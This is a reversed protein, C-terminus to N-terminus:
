GRVKTSEGRNYEHCTHKHCYDRAIRAVHRLYDQADTFGKLDYCPRVSLYAQVISSVTSIKALAKAIRAVLDESCVHGVCEFTRLAEQRVWPDIDDLFRAFLKILASAVNKTKCRDLNEVSRQLLHCVKIRDRLPLYVSLSAISTLIAYFADDQLSELCTADLLVVVLDSLVDLQKGECKAITNEVFKWIKILTEIVEENNKYDVAIMVSLLQVLRNWNRASPREQLDSFAKPLDELKRKLRDTPYKIKTALAYLVPAHYADQDVICDLLKIRANDTLLEFLSTIVNDLMIAEVSDRRKVFVASTKILEKVYSACLESTGLKGIFYWVDASLLSSWLYGSLLHKLLIQEISVHFDEPSIKSVLGCIRVLTAEYISVLIPQESTECKLPVRLEGVCIEEKIHEIHTLAVDLISDVNTWLRVHSPLDSLKKIVAITLLHYNLRDQHLSVRKGYDFYVERFHNTHSTFLLALFFAAGVSITKEGDRTLRLCSYGHLQALLEVLDPMTKETLFTGYATTIKELIKLLRTAVMASREAKKSQQDKVAHLLSSVDKIMRVYHTAVSNRNITHQHAVALKAFAESLEVFTKTDMGNTLSAVSGYMDIVKTLLETESQVKTDFVIVSNLTAFFLNFIAGATAFLNKLEGAVSGLLSGYESSAKCHEFVIKIAEPLIDCLSAVHVARVEDLARIHEVCKSWFALLGDCVRLKCKVDELFDDLRAKNSTITDRIDKVIELLLAQAKPLVKRFIQEDLLQVACRSFSQELAELLHAVDFAFRDQSFDQKDFFTELKSVPITLDDM